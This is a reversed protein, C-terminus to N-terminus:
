SASASIAPRLSRTAPFASGCAARPTPISAAIPGSAPAMTPTSRRRPRFIWGTRTCSASEGSWATMSISCASSRGTGRARWCTPRARCRARDTSSWRSTACASRISCNAGRLRWRRSRGASPTASRHAGPTQTTASCYHWRTGPPAIPPANVAFGAMDDHLYVMQSSPDFGSNTEDLALGTTM